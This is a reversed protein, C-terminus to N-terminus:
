RKLAKDIRSILETIEVPKAIFDIVGLEYMTAKVNDTDLASLAIVPVKKGVPDASLMKCVEMGNIKPMLIDLLIIDPNFAKIRSLINTADSVAEVEYRGTRELNIKIIRLFLIEDDVIIVKKKELNNGKPYKLLL